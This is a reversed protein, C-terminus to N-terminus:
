ISITLDRKYNHFAHPIQAINQWLPGDRYLFVTNGIYLNMNYYTLLFMKVSMKSGTALGMHWCLVTM